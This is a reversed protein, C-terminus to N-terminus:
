SRKLRPKIKPETTIVKNSLLCEALKEAVVSDKLEETLKNVMAEKKMGSNTKKDYLIVEGNTTNICDLNNSIMYEQIDTELIDISSKLEKQSKRLEALDKQIALYEQIKSQIITSAM